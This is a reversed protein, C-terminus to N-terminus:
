EAASKTVVKASRKLLAKVRHWARACLWAVKGRGNERYLTHTHIPWLEPRWGDAWTCRTIFSVRDLAPDACARKLAEALILKGPAFHSLEDLYAIKQLHLTRGSRFWLITGIAREDLWLLDLECRGHAGMRQTLAEYYAVLDPDCAVAGGESGKWGSAEVELFSPMAAAMAAPATHTVYRLTGQEAAKRGARSLSSRHNGSAAKLLDAYDRDSPLWATADIELSESMRPPADAMWQHIVADANARPVHLSVWPVEWTQLWSWLARWLEVTDRNAAVDSLALHPHSFLSLRGGNAADQELPLVAVLRGNERASVWILREMDAALHDAFGECWSPAQVFSLAPISAALAYWEPLLADLGARGRLGEFSWTSPTHQVTPGSTTPM